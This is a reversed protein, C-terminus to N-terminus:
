YLYVAGADAAANNTQDIPLGVGDGDERPAGVALITGTGSLALSTGFRDSAGTNSAKVYTLQTTSAGNRAFVYVAGALSASNDSQDGNVGMSNSSEDDAGIALTNGDASIAVARGFTDITGTNSAKLYSEQNWASGSRVFVYAAGALNATDDMQNGNVGTASSDEADAGILLVNGDASISASYGFADGGGTNSGKVYSQQSWSYFSARAFVYVAGAGAASNDLPNGDIGIANSAESIAGVALTNGDGSLAVSFGFLDNADTNSAKVYTNLQWASAVRNFVYVAGSDAAANSTGDGGTGTDNSDEHVASVALTDGSASLSVESGFWDGPGTNQPKLYAQQAWTSGNRTYVYVAGSDAASNDLQNGNIGIANSDEHTAGVALTNGDASLSVSSGFLDGANPNSAKVYAQENWSGNGARALVIVAGADTASNDFANGDIGVANSDDRFAAIALTNGDASLAIANGFQDGADALGKRYGIASVAASVADAVNSQPGCGGANCARVVFRPQIWDDRHLNSLINFFLATQDPGYQTYGASGTPDRFLRYFAAGPVATWEFHISKYLPGTIALVPATAPAPESCAVAISTVNAAAISGTGGTVSCVQAPASPQTLVTVAYAGGSALASAFVFNGSASVAVTASGNLQLTLGTGSLNSVTGGVTYTPAPPAPPPSSGGGGGGGCASLAAILASASV